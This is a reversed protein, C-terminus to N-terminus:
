PSQCLSTRGKLKIQSGPLSIGFDVCIFIPILALLTRSLDIPDVALPMLLLHLALLISVLSFSRDHETALYQWFGVWEFIHLSPIYLM